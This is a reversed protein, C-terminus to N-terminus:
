LGIWVHTFHYHLADRSPRFSPDKPLSVIKGDLDVYPSTSIKRSVQIRLTEPDIGIFGLDFLLHVDSRLLLGNQVHNTSKVRYPVIHAAELVDEIVTETMACRGQYARILKQRFDRQGLRVCIARFTKQRGDEISLPDFNKEVDLIEWARNLEPITKTQFDDFDVILSRIGNMQTKRLNEYYEVHQRVSSIAKKLYDSGLVDSIAELICRTTATNMTRKYEKGDMMCSFNNLCNQASAGNMGISELETRAQDGGIIGRFVQTCLDAVKKSMEITVKSM